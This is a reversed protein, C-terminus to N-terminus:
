RSVFSHTGLAARAEWTTQNTAACHYYTRGDASAHVVWKAAPQAAAPPPAPPPVLSAGWGMAPAAYAPQGYM